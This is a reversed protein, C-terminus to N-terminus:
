FGRASLYEDLYYHMVEMSKKLPDSQYTKLMDPENELIREMKFPNLPAVLGTELDLIFVLQRPFSGHNSTEASGVAIAGLVGGGIGAAVATNSFDGPNPNIEHFYAYQGFCCAKVFGKKRGASNTNIYLDHGDSLAYLEKEPKRIDANKDNFTIKFYARPSIESNTARTQVATFDSVIFPKNDRLEMFNRYLGKEVAPCSCEHSKPTIEERSQPIVSLHILFLFTSLCGTVVQRIM